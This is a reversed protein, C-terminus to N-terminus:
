LCKVIGVHKSDDYVVTWLLIQNPFENIADISFAIAIVKIKEM